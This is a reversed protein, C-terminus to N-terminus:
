VQTPKNNENLIFNRPKNSHM